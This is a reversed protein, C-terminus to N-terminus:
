EGLTGKQKAKLFKYLPDAKNGNVDIKSYLDFQAGYNEQAFEKIQENSGPEQFFAIDM